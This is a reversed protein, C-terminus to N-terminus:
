SLDVSAISRRGTGGVGLKLRGTGGVGSLRGTRGVGLKLRGTGGVGSLRGTGGVGLKGTGGVGAKQVRGTGGVGSLRGTGGIGSLRVYSREADARDMRGVTMPAASLSSSLSILLLALGTASIASRSATKGWRM